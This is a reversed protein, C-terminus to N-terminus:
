ERVFDAVKQYLVKPCEAILLHGVDEILDLRSNQYL